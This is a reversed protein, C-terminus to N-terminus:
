STRVKENLEYLEEVDIELKLWKIAIERTEAEEVFCEGGENDVVLYGGDECRAIFSIREPMQVSKDDQSALWQDIFAEAETQTKELM